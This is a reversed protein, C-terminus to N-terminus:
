RQAIVVELRRAGHVERVRSLEIEIDGLPSSPSLSSSISPKGPFLIV